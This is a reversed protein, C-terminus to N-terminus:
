TPTGKLHRGEISRTRCPGHTKTVHQRRLHFFGIRSFCCASPRQQGHRPLPHAMIRVQHVWCQSWLHDHQGIGQGQGARRFAENVGEHGDLSSEGSGQKPSRANTPGVVKSQERPKTDIQEIQGTRTLGRGRPHEEVTAPGACRRHVKSFGRGHLLLHLRPLSGDSFNSFVKAGSCKSLDHVTLGEDGWRGHSLETM